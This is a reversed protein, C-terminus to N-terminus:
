QFMAMLQDGFTWLGIVTICCCCLLVVVGVAIIVGTNSKKPEEPMPIDPMENM